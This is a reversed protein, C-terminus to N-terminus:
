GRKISILGNVMDKISDEFIKYLNLTQESMDEICKKFEDVNKGRLHTNAEEYNKNFETVYINVQEADRKDLYDVRRLIINIYMSKAKKIDWFQREVTEWSMEYYESNKTSLDTSYRNITEILKDSTTHIVYSGLYYKIYDELVGGIRGVNSMEELVEELDTKLQELESGKVRWKLRLTNITDLGKSLAPVIKAIGEIWAIIEIAM